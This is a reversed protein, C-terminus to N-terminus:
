RPPLHLSSLDQRRARCHEARVVSVFAEVADDLRDNIIVYDYEHLHDLERRATALRRERVEASETRRHELRRALEDWSPPLVFVLVADPRQRRVQLGGQVEIELVVDRGAALQEEVWARPTGYYNGVYEACELFEGRERMAQFQEPTRFHFQVGDTEDPRPRRTTVSVSEVVEAFGSLRVKARKLIEGKGVGSPGSLVVLLGAQASGATGAHESSSTPV